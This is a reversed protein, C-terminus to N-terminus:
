KLQELYAVLANIEDESLHYNPMNSGPKRAPPNALWAAVQEPDHNDFICGAFCDRSAFHTLNPGGIAGAQTGQIAHCQLCQGGQGNTGFFFQRGQDALSGAAPTAGDQRQGQAWADFDPGSLAVVRERMNAHSLGCFEYCQGYYTGASDASFTIHNVHGPICDQKGFLEPIWFSHIVANGVGGQFDPDCKLSLYVTRNVPVYLENATKVPAPPQTSAQMSPDTYDFEWWWQHGVVTVNIVDGTPKRALDFLTAVTPVAVGVLVIVPLITWGIELKTNGHIQPPMRDSGKRHRYRFLFLLILGEVVVFVAAAIWFVPTFLNDIQRANPGHPKLSDQTANPACAASTVVLALLGGLLALARRVRPRSTREAPRM